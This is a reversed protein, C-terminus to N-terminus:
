QWPYGFKKRAFIPNSDFLYLKTKNRGEGYDKRHTWSYIPNNIKATTYISHPAIEKQSLYDMMKWYRYRTNFFFVYNITEDIVYIWVFFIMLRPWKKILKSVFYGLVLFCIPIIPTLFRHEKHAIASFVLVYVAFM